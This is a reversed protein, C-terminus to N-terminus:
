KGGGEGRFGCDMIFRWMGALSGPMSRDVWGREISGPVAPWTRVSVGRVKVAEYWWIDGIRALESVVRGNICLGMGIMFLFYFITPRKRRGGGSCHEDARGCCHREALRVSVLM